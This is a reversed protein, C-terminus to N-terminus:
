KFREAKKAGLFYEGEIVFLSVQYDSEFKEEIRFTGILEVPVDQVPAIGKGRMEVVVYDNMNPTAGYCCTNTDRMMVFKRCVGNEFQLPMMFGTLLVRKGDYVRIWDPVQDRARAAAVEAASAGTGIDTVVYPFASLLHFGLTYAEANGIKVTKPSVDSPKPLPPAATMARQAHLGQLPLMVFLVLLPLTKVGLTLM